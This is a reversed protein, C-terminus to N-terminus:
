KRAAVWLAHRQSERPIFGVLLVLAVNNTMELILMIAAVIMEERDTPVLNLAIRVSANTVNNPAPTTAFVLASRWPAPRWTTRLGNILLEDRSAATIIASLSIQATPKM